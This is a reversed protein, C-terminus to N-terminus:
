LVAQAFTDSRVGVGNDPDIAACIAETFWEDSRMDGMHHLQYVKYLGQKSLGPTTPDAFDPQTAGPVPTATQILKSSVQLARATQINPNLLSRIVLGDLTQTPAGVLGSRTDLIIAGGERVGDLPIMNLRGDEFFWNCKAAVSLDQLVEKIMRFCSTGRTLRPSYTATTASASIATSTLDPIDGRTIGYEKLADLVVQLQDDLSSGAQLARSVTGFNYASECDGATIDLFSDVSNEKGRRFFSILGSFIVGYPNNQYGAKLRIQTAQQIKNATNESLNYIRCDLRKLTSATASVVDFKFEMASLDLGKGSDDAVVLECKRLWQPQDPIAVAASSFDAM